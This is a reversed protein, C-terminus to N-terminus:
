KNFNFHLGKDKIKKEPSVFLRPIRNSNRKSGGTIEDNRIAHIMKSRLKTLDEAFREM